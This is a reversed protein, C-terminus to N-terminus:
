VCVISYVCLVCVIRVCLVMGQRTNPGAQTLAALDDADLQQRRKVQEQLVYLGMQTTPPPTNPQTYQTYQTTHIPNHTNSQTIQIPLSVYM